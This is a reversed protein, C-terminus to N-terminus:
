GSAARHSEEIAAALTGAFEDCVKPLVPALLANVMPGQFGGPVLELHVQMTTAGGDAPAASFAGSGAVNDNTAELTFAVRSPEDWETIRIRFTVAKSLQGIQGKLTWLSEDDSLREHSQYGTVLPAWNDMDSTFRWVAEIPARVERVAEGVAM